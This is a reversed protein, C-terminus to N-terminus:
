CGNMWRRELGFDYEGKIHKEGTYPHDLVASLDITRGRENEPQEKAKLLDTRGVMEDITRVGLKAMYERLEQAIFEM